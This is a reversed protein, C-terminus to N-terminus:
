HSGAMLHSMAVDYGRSFGARYDNRASRSVSPHRYEDRNRVNPKRHNDYDKRAGEIGDHFGQRQIDQLEQPPTDWGSSAQGYAATQPEQSTSYGQAMILGPTALVLAAASLTLRNIKM